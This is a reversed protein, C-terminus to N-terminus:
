DFKIQMVKDIDDLLDSGDDLANEIWETAEGKDVLNLVNDSTAYGYYYISTRVYYENIDLEKSRQAIEILEYIDGYEKFDDVWDEVTMVPDTSDNISLDMLLNGLSEPQEKEMYNYIAQAKEQNTMDTYQKLQKEM